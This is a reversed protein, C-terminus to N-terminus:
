TGRTTKWTDYEECRYGSVAAMGPFDRLLRALEGHREAPMEHQYMGPRRTSPFYPPDCYVLVGPACYRRLIDTFDLNEIVVRRFVEGFAELREQSNLWRSLADGALDCAWQGPSPRATAAGFTQQQLVFFRWARAIDEACGPSPAEGAICAAYQQRSYPTWRLLERLEARKKVDRLVCFFNVVEGDVDNYVLLTKKKDCACRRMIELLVSGSGGFVDIFVRYSGPPPLHDAIWPALRAKGGPYRFVPNHV